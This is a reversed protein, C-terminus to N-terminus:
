IFGRKSSKDTLHCGSGGFSCNTIGEWIGLIALNFIAKPLVGLAQDDDKEGGVKKNEQRSMQNILRSEVEAAVEEKQGEEGGNTTPSSPSGVGGGTTSQPPPMRPLNSEDSKIIGPDTSSGIISSVLFVPISM